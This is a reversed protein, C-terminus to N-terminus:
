ASYTCGAGSYTGTEAVRVGGEATGGPSAAAADAAEGAADGASDGATAPTEGADASCFPLAAAACPLPLVPRVPGEGPFAPGDGAV